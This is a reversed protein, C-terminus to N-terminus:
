YFSMAGATCWSVWTGSALSNLDAFVCVDSFQLQSSLKTSFLILVFRMCQFYVSTEGGM